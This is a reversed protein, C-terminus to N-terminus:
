YNDTTMKFAYSEKSGFHFGTKCNKIINSSYHMIHKNPLTVQLKKSDGLFYFGGLKPCLFYMNLKEIVVSKPSDARLYLSILKAHDKIIIIGGVAEVDWNTTSAHWENDIIKLNLKGQSNYFVANLRFPSGPEEPEKIEILNTNEVSILVQTEEFTTGAFTIKPYVEGIDLVERSFISKKKCYPERRKQKITEKSLFKRTVKAHCQPCLLAIKEPDHEKAEAFPPDIHEYEIISTGCNVCGFGCDKRVQLKVSEPITRSLGYKTQSM